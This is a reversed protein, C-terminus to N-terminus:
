QYFSAVHRHSKGEGELSLCLMSVIGEKKTEEPYQLSPDSAVDLVAHPEGSLTRALAKTRM